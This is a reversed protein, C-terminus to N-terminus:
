GVVSVRAMRPVVEAARIWSHHAVAPTTWGIDPAAAGSGGLLLGVSILVATSAARGVKSRVSQGCIGTQSRAAIRARAAPM